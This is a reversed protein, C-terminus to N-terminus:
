KAAERIESMFKEACARCLYVSHETGCDSSGLFIEVRSLHEKCHDCVPPDEPGIEPSILAKVYNEYM